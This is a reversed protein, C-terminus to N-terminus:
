PQWIAVRHCFGHRGCVCHSINVTYLHCHKAVVRSRGVPRGPAGIDAQCNSSTAALCSSPYIRHCPVAPLYTCHRNNEQHRVVQLACSDLILALQAHPIGPIFKRDGFSLYNGSFSMLLPILTIMAMLPPYCAAGEDTHEKQPQDALKWVMTSQCDRDFTGLNTFFCSSYSIFYRWHLESVGNARSRAKLQSLPQASFLLLLM